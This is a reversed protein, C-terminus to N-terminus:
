LSQCRDTERLSQVGLRLINIAANHDRDLILGCYPCSHIRESLSKTVIQGCGSCMQSTNCPNILKVIKGAWEAKYTTVTILKNWAVDAIHKSLNHNQIMGKVNLDEFTIFDYEKVLNLSIKQIFDERKNSIREHIHQVIKLMKKRLPTGKKAKSLKRQAKILKKEDTVFFRPNPIHEGNSLTLFSSIGVDIGVSLGTKPLTSESESKVLFSVFWKGTPMKRINLRQIEGDFTRHLKIKIEGIKSLWLINDNLEFGSQTYTISDYRGYGKFRPYGAKEGAKVRRFFAQFALDVRKVIEQLVQSHVTKLEPKEKKWVPIMKKSEYYNINKQENEWANKRLALTENYTWRCLELTQNLNKRQKKTPYLRYRYVKM